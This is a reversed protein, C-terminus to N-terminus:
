IIFNLFQKCTNSSVELNMLGLGQTIKTWLVGKLTFHKLFAQLFYRGDEFGEEAQLNSDDESDYDDVDTNPFFYLSEYM